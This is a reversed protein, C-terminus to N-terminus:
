VLLHRRCTPRRGRRNGHEGKGHRDEDECDAPWPAVLFSPGRAPWEGTGPIPRFRINDFPLARTSLRALMEVPRVGACRASLKLDASKREDNLYSAGVPPRV